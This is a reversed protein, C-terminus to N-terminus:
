HHGIGPLAVRKSSWVSQRRSRSLRARCTANDDPRYALDTGTRFAYRSYVEHRHGEGGRLRSTACRCRISHGSCLTTYQRSCCIDSSILDLMDPSWQAVSRNDWYNTKLDILSLRWNMCPLCPVMYVTPISRPCLLSRNILLTEPDTSVEIVIASHLDKSGGIKVIDRLARAGLERVSKDWHRLSISHIHQRL